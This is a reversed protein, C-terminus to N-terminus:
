CLLPMHIHTCTMAHQATSSSTICAARGRWRCERRGYAFMFLCVGAAWCEAPFPRFPSGRAGCMEPALFAPTGLTTATLADASPQAHLAPHASHHRRHRRAHLQLVLLHQAHAHAPQRCAAHMTAHAQLLRVRARGARGGLRVLLRASGFDCIKLRGERSLLLNDPKIDGHMILNSHLYCLGSALERHLPPM